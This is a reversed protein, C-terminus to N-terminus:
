LIENGVPTLELWQQDEKSMKAKADCQALLDALTYKPKTLPKVVLHGELLAVDVISGSGIKLEELFAPSLAMMVSGGVKRLNTQM